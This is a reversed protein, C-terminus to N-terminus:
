YHEQTQTYTQRQGRSAAAQRSSGSAPLNKLGPPRVVTWNIDEVNLLFKEMEHMNTLVSRIMPLLLFRIM